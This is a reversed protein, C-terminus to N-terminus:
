SILSKLLMMVGLVAITALNWLTRESSMFEVNKENLPMSPNAMFAFVRFALLIGLCAWYDVDDIALQLSFCIALAATNAAIIMGILLRIKVPLLNYKEIASKCFSEFGAIADYLWAPITM